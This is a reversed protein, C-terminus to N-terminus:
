SEYSLCGALVMSHGPIVSNAGDHSRLRRIVKYDFRVPHGAPVGDYKAHKQWDEVDIDGPTGKSHLARM